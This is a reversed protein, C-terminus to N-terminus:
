AINRLPEEDISQPTRKRTRKKTRQDQSTIHYVDGYCINCEQVRKAEKGRRQMDALVIKADLETFFLVKGCKGRPRRMM